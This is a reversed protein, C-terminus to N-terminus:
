PREERRPERPKMGLAQLAASAWSLANGRKIKGGRIELMATALAETASNRYALDMLRRIEVADSHRLEEAAFAIASFLQHPKDDFRYARTLINSLHEDPTMTEAGM